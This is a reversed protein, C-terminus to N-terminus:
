SAFMARRRRPSSGVLISHIALVAPTWYCEFTAVRSYSLNHGSDTSDRAAFARGSSASM